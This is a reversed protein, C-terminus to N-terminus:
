DLAMIRNCIQLVHCSVIGVYIKDTCITIYLKTLIQGNTVYIKETYITIYPKTLIQGNTRLINLPVFNQLFDLAM